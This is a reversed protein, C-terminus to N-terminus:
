DIPGPLLEGKESFDPLFYGWAITFFAQEKKDKDQTPMELRFEVKFTLAVSPDLIFKAVEIYGKAEYRDHDPAYLAIFIKEGSSRWTNDYDICIKREIIRPKGLRLTTARPELEGPIKFKEFVYRDLFNLFRAEFDNSTRIVMKNVVIDDTLCPKIDVKRTSMKNGILGPIMDHLGCLTTSPILKKLPNLIEYERIQVKTTCSHTVPEKFPAKCMLFRPSGLYMPLDTEVAVGKFGFLFFVSYGLSVFNSKNKNELEIIELYM